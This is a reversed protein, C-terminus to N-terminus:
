GAIRVRVIKTEGDADTAMMWFGGPYSVTSVPNPFEGELAARGLFQGERDFLEVVPKATPDPSFLSVWVRGNGDVLLKEFAPKTKPFETNKVIYDPAGKSREV